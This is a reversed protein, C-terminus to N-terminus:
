NKTKERYESPSMGAEKKFFHSFTAQDPFGLMESIENMNSNLHTRLLQKAQQLTYVKIWYGASKGTEKRIVASFYKPSLSFMSAYFAIERNKCCNNIVADHFQASLNRVTRQNKEVYKHKNLNRYYDIMRVLIELMDVMMDTSGEPSLRSICGLTSVAHMVDEYQNKSLNFCPQVEYKFRGASVNRSFLSAFLKESVVVMTARYDDSASEAILTHNPYVVSLDHRNFVEKKGDYELKVTGSHNISIIYHPSIYPTGYTPMGRVDDIVVVGRKAIKSQLSILPHTKVIKSQKTM